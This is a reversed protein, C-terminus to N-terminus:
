SIPNPRIPVNTAELCYCLCHPLDHICQLSGQVCLSKYACDPAIICVSPCQSMGYAVYMFKSQIFTGSSMISDIIIM